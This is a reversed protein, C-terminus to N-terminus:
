KIRDLPMQVILIFVPVIVATILWALPPKKYHIYLIPFMALDFLFSHFTRWGNQYHMSDTLYMIYEVLAFGAAWLVVYVPLKSKKEPCFTLFLIAICPFIIVVWFLDMYTHGLDPWIPMHYEWLSYNFFAFNYTLDGVIFFLITPYYEKWRRWNGKRFCISALAISILIHIM